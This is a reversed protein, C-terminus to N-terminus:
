QETWSVNELKEMLESYLDISCAIKELWFDSKFVKIKVETTAKPGLPVQVRPQPVMASSCSMKLIPKAKYESLSRISVSLSYESGAVKTLSILSRELSIQNAFLSFNLKLVAFKFTVETGGSQTDEMVFDLKDSDPNPITGLPRPGYASKSNSFDFFAPIQKRSELIKRPTTALCHGTRRGCNMKPSNEGGFIFGLKHCQDFSGSYMQESILLLNSFDIPTLPDTPSAHSLSTGNIVFLDSSFDPLDQLTANRIQFDMVEDQLSPSEAFRDFDISLLPLQQPNTEAPKLSIKVSNKRRVREFKFVDWLEKSKLLCVGKLSQRNEDLCENRKEVLAAYKVVSDCRCCNGTELKFNQTDSPPFHALCSNLFEQPDLYECAPLTTLQIHKEQIDYPVSGIKELSVLLLDPSKEVTLAFPLEWQQTKPLRSPISGRLPQSLNLPPNSPSYAFTINAQIPVHTSNCGPSGIHCDLDPTLVISIASQSNSFSFM